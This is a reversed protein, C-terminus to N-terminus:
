FHDFWSFKFWAQHVWVHKSCCVFRRSTLCSTEYINEEVNKNKKLLIMESESIHKLWRLAIGRGPIKGHNCGVNCRIDVANHPMWCHAAISNSYLWVYVSHLAVYQCNIVNITHLFIKYLYIIENM